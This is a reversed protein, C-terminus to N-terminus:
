SLAPAAKGAVSSLLDDAQGTVSLVTQWLYGDTGVKKRSSIAAPIPVHTLRRRWSGIVTDTKGAMGAHVAAHGLRLCFNADRANAPLSRIMYSPDIYKLTVAIGQARFAEPIKDKLFVGIDGHRRNGSADSESAEALLSQGAGEAVVIVVYGDRQIRQRAARVVGDISFAIEPILCLGVQTDALTAFSAIFGSDRGMLKVLGIGFRHCSAEVYAARTAHRAAEVATDFGFSMDIFSIDNDITKPVGVVAIKLGRRRIEEVISHAGSLTGDGGITFLLQIGLRELTDVMEGVPQPGRSSGLVTGGVENIQTLKRTTLEIPTLASREVLGEYGYKFGYVKAVGYKEHLCFVLSRIVDNLGPCLGGCTVIGCKLTAPNFFIRKRPGALEFAPPDVGARFQARLEDIDARFLLRKSTDMFRTARLPSVIKCEGLDDTRFNPSVSTM